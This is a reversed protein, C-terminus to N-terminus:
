KIDGVRIVRCESFTNLISIRTEYVGAPVFLLNGSLALGKTLPPRFAASRLLGLRGLQRLIIGKTLETKKNQHDRSIEYLDPYGALVCM